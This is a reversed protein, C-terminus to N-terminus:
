RRERTSWSRSSWASCRRPMRSPWPPPSSVPTMAGMLTFPTIPSPSAMRAMAILGDAMAEDLLRPSNVSIITIVGPDRKMQDLSLGRAIAMMSIGDLARGSGIATCHIPLPRQADPQRPLYDLHRSNAPLEQPATVQNGIMHIANFPQALRIFNEYDRMNGSRRGNICDHVNPPGAVLGFVMHRGGFVLKRGPNRPTLTFTRPATRLAETVISEDIRVLKEAPDVLAGAAAFREIAAESLVRIGLESLIRISTKHIAEIQEPTAAELPAFPNEPQQWPLQSIAGGSRASRQRRGGGRRDTTM